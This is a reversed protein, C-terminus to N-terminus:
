LDAARELATAFTSPRRREAELECTVAVEITVARGPQLHLRYAAEDANLRNPAPDLRIRTRRRVGDLGRYGLTLTGDAVRAPTRVGRRERTTGRVEFIDAYDAEVRITLPLRVSRTGFNRVTIREYCVGDWLVKSRAIHITGSRVITGDIVMDPNTVDVALRSNDRKATSGLLLPREGDIRLLFASLYRTGHHYLGEESMGVPRVDGYRDFVAFSDGHMLVRDNEDALSTSALVYFRNGIEVIDDIPRSPESPRQDVEKISRPRQTM